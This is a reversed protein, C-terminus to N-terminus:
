FWPVTAQQSLGYSNFSGIVPEDIIPGHCIFLPFSPQRTSQSGITVFPLRLREVATDPIRQAASAEDLGHRKMARRRLRDVNSKAQARSVQRYRANPPVELISAVQLYDAVGQLWTSEMLGYLSQAPGHLRLKTGLQPKREDHDPFSVGIDQHSGQVLARHLKAYLGSLLQHPAIEPDPRLTIDIYHSSMVDGRM